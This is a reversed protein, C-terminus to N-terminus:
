RTRLTRGLSRGRHWYGRGREVAPRRRPPDEARARRGMPLHGRDRRLASHARRGSQSHERVVGVAHPSSPYKRAPGPRRTARAADGRTRGQGTPGSRRMLQAYGAQEFNIVHSGAECIMEDGPRCHLRVSILNAMTGSPVFLAEEKGLVEALRRQLRNVSPDDGFVNDGVEAAAICARMAPTPRTVTDSRFDLNM